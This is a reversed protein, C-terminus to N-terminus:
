LNIGQGGNYIRPLNSFTSTGRTKEKMRGLDGDDFDLVEQELTDRESQWRELDSRQPLRGHDRPGETSQSTDRYVVEDAEGTLPVDTVLDPQAFPDNPAVAELLQADASKLLHSQCPLGLRIIVCKCSTRLGGGSRKSLVCSTQTKRRSSAYTRSQSRRRRRRM